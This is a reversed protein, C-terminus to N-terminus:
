TAYIVVSVCGKGIRRAFEFDPDARQMPAAARRRQGPRDLLQQRERVEHCCRLARARHRVHHFHHLADDLGHHSPRTKLGKHHVIKGHTDKDDRAAAAQAQCQKRGMCIPITLVANECDAM